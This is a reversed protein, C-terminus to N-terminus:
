LASGILKGLYKHVIEKESLYEKPNIKELAKAIFEKVKILFPDEYTSPRKKLPSLPEAKTAARLLSVGDFQPDQKTQSTDLLMKKTYEDRLISHFTKRFELDHAVRKM